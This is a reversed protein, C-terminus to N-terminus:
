ELLFTAICNKELQGNGENAKCQCYMIFRKMYFDQSTIHELMRSIIALMYRIWFKAGVKRLANMHRQPPPSALLATWGSNNVDRETRLRKM